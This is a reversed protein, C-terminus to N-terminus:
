EHISPRLAWASLDTVSSSIAPAFSFYGESVGSVLSAYKILLIKSLWKGLADAALV